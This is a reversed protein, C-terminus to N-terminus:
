SQARTEPPMRTMRVLEPPVTAAGVHGPVVVNTPVHFVALAATLRTSSTHVPPVANM